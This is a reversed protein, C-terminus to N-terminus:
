VHADHWHLALNSWVLEVSQDKLPIRCFDGNIINTPKKRFLKQIFSTSPSSQQLVPFSADIGIIQAKPYHTHLTALDACRGCGADIVHKPDLRVLQLRELMRGAIERYIFDAAKLKEPYSFLQRVQNLDTTM